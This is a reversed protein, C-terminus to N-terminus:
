EMHIVKLLKQKQQSKRLIELSQRNLSELNKRKNEVLRARKEKEEKLLERRLKRQKNIYKLTEQRETHNKRRPCEPSMNQEAFYSSLSQM